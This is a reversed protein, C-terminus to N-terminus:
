VTFRIYSRDDFSVNGAMMGKTAKFEGICLPDTDLQASLARESAELTQKLLPYGDSALVIESCGPAVDIVKVKDIPIDFGDIVSYAINQYRCSARLDDIICRRGPDERCADDVSLGKSIAKKLYEARKEALIREQPKPNDYLVGDVLCQCDGIMWVQRMFASYVVASATLREVPHSALYDMSIGNIRYGSRVAETVNRCFVDLGIDAPMTEISRRVLEMCYWGNSKGACIEVATKSTSGDIVAM